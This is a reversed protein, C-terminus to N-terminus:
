KPHAPRVRAHQQHPDPNSGLAAAGDLPIFRTSRQGLLWKEHREVYPTFGSRACGKLSPVNDKGVFTVVWRAGCDGAKEAIVAMAYAMIGQGRYPEPTYAGELLAEDPKLAPFIKPWRRQVRDNSSAPILWQMYCVEGGPAVGVWCTGIGDDLLRRQRVRDYAVVGELGPADADLFPLPDRPDLPRVEVALKPPPPTLPIALDRRLGLAVGTSSLRSAVARAVRRSHGARILRALEYVRNGIGVISGQEPRCYLHRRRGPISV